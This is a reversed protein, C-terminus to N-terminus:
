QVKMTAQIDMLQREQGKWSGCFLSKSRQEEVKIPAAQKYKRLGNLAVPLKKFSTWIVTTINHDRQFM